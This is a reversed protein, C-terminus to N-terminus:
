IALDKKDFIIVSATLLVVGIALAIVTLGVAGNEGAIIAQPNFLTFLSLYKLKELSGGMNALMQFLYFLVPVGAGVATSYKSESFLCAAFFCMGLIAIHLFFVGMNMLLYRKVDLGGEFMLHSCVLGLATCYGLLIVLHTLIVALQTVIVKVRTNPSALLYAMSGRDIYRSVLKQVSLITFVMPFLLMLFGYLYSAIFETLTTGVNDMGVMALVEPMAEAFGQLTASLEPNYMYIILSIYMTLVSGFILLKILGSKFGQKYLPISIM